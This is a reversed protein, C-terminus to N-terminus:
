EDTSASPESLEDSPTPTDSGAVPQSRAPADDGLGEARFDVTGANNLTEIQDWLALALANAAESPQPSGDEDRPVGEPADVTAADVTLQNRKVTLIDETVGDRQAEMRLQTEIDMTETGTLIAVEFTGDGYEAELRDLMAQRSQITQAQQDLHDVENRLVWLGQADGDLQEPDNALPRDRWDDGYETSAHEALEAYAERLEALESDYQSRLDAWTLTTSLTM